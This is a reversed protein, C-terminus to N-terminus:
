GPSHQDPCALVILDTPGWSGVLMIQPAPRRDDFPSLLSGFVCIGAAAAHQLPRYHNGQQQRASVTEVDADHGFLRLGSFIVSHEMAKRERRGAFVGLWYKRGLDM